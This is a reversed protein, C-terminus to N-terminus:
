SLDAPKIEEASVPDSKVVQETEVSLIPPLPTIEEAEVSTKTTTTIEASPAGVRGEAVVSSELEKQV